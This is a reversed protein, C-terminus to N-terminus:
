NGRHGLGERNQGNPGMRMAKPFPRCQPISSVFFNFAQSKLNLLSFLSM